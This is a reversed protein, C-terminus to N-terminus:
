FALGPEQHIERRQAGSVHVGAGKQYHPSLGKGLFLSVICLSVIFLPM